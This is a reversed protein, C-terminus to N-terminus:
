RKVPFHASRSSYDLEVLKKIVKDIKSSRKAQPECTEDGDVDLHGDGSASGTRGLELRPEALDSECLSCKSISVDDVRAFILDQEFTCESCLQHICTSEFSGRLVAKSPLADGCKSCNRAKKVSGPNLAFTAPGQGCANGVIGHSCIQRLRVIFSLLNISSTRAGTRIFTRAQSRISIYHHREIQSLAVSVVEEIRRRPECAVKSRRLTVARMMLRLNVLGKEDM